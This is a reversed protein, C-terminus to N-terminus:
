LEVPRFEYGRRSKTTLKNHKYEDEGCVLVAGYEDLSIGGGYESIHTMNPYVQVQTPVYRAAFGMRYDKKSGTHPFSAHMVTSWFIVAEGPKLVMPYAKSEDPKFDPDKQLQRYDYGFFGRKVGDKVQKNTEEAQYQMGRTEDYNMYKHTGPMLQLCGNEVTSYTMSTWVTITGGFPPMGPAAPWIIQPKGTAHAFTAAQHWDTGEDGQFKPFFESRWCLVNPGLISAVKAVIEPRMIHESLLDIDLHRDYNEISGAQGETDPYIALSRDHLQRHVTKWREQMEEVDFVKIPGIFGDRDFQAVQEDTLAHPSRGLGVREAASPYILTNERVKEAVQSLTGEFLTQMDVEAGYREQILTNLELALGSHGGLDLFNDGPGAQPEELLDAAWAVIDQEVSQTHQAQTTM